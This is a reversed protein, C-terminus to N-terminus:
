RRAKANDGYWIQERYFIGANAKICQSYVFMCVAFAKNGVICKFANSLQKTASSHM